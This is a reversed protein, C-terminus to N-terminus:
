RPRQDLLFSLAATGRRYDEDTLTVWGQHARDNLPAIEGLRQRDKSGCQAATAIPDPLLSLLLAADQWDRARNTRV